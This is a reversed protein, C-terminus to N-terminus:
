ETAHEEEKAQWMVCGFDSSVTEESLSPATGCILPDVYSCAVGRVCKSLTYMGSQTETGPRFWRCDRCRGVLVMGVQEAMEGLEKIQRRDPNM